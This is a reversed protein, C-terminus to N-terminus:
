CVTTKASGRAGIVLLSNGEGALITQSVTQHVRKYEEEFGILQLRRRGTIKELVIKKMSSFVEEAGEDQLLRSFLADTEDEKQGLTIDDLEPSVELRATEAIGNERVISKQGNSEKKPRGRKRKPTTEEQLLERVVDITDDIGNLGLVPSMQRKRKALTSIDRFGIQDDVDDTTGDDFTVTKRRGGRKDDGNRSGNILDAKEVPLMEGSYRRPKRRERGSQRTSSPSAVVIVDGMRSDEKPILDSLRVNTPTSSKSGRGGSTSRVMRNKARKQASGDESGRVAKEKTSARQTDQPSADDEKDDIDGNSKLMQSLSVPEDKLKSKAKKVVVTPSVHAAHRAPSFGDEKPGLRRRKASRPTGDFKDVHVQGATTSM